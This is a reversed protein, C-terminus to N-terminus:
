FIGCCSLCSEAFQQCALWGAGGVGWPCSAFLHGWIVHSWGAGSLFLTGGQPWFTTATGWCLRPGEPAGHAGGQAGGANPTPTRCGSGFGLQSAASPSTFSEPFLSLFYKRADAGKDSATIPIDTLQGDAALAPCAMATNPCLMSQADQNERGIGFRPSQRLISM